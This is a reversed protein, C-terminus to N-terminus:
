ARPLPQPILSGVTHPQLPVPDNEGQQTRAVSCTNHGRRTGETNGGRTERGNQGHGRLPLRVSWTVNHVKDLSHPLLSAHSPCIPPGMARPLCQLGLPIPECLIYDASHHSGLPDVSEDRSGSFCGTKDSHVWAMVFTRTFSFAIHLCFCLPM